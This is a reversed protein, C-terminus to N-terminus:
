STVLQRVGDLFDAQNRESREICADAIRCRLTDDELSRLADIWAGVPAAAPLLIGTRGDDIQEAIGGVASAVPVTGLHQSLAVAASQTAARYPLLTAASGAVTAALSGAPAFGAHSLLRGSPQPAGVGVAGVCWRSATDSAALNDAVDVVLDTGKYGRKLVGFHLALLHGNPTNLLPRDEPGPHFADPVPLPLLTVPTTTPVRAAVFESHAVVTDAADLNRRLGVTTGGVLSHARHNHVVWVLRAGVERAADVVPRELAPIVYNQVVVTDPREDRIVRAAEVALRRHRSVRDRGGDVGRVHEGSLERGALTVVLPDLGLDDLTRTWASTCQAIGGRGLWEVLVVSM